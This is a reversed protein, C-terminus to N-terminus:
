GWSCRPRRTSSPSSVLCLDAFPVLCGLLFRALALLIVPVRHPVVVAPSGLLPLDVDIIQLPMLSICQQLSASRLFLRRVPMFPYIRNPQGCFDPSREGNGVPDQPLRPM